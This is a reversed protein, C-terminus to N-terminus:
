DELKKEEALELKLKEYLENDSIGNEDVSKLRISDKLLIMKSVVIDITSGKKLNSQPAIEKGKYKQYVVLGNGYTTYVSDINGLKLGANNLLMKALNLSGNTIKPVKVNPIRGTNVIVFVKRGPKVKMKEPPDQETISLPKANEKFVSDIVVLEFDLDDALKYANELPMGTLKPLDIRQGHKTFWGTFKMAFLIYLGFIIVALIIHKLYKTM